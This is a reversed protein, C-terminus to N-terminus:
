SPFVVSFLHNKIETEYWNSGEGGFAFNNIFSSWLSMNPLTVYDPFFNVIFSSIAEDTLGYKLHKKYSIVPNILDALMVVWLNSRLKSKAEEKHLKRLNAVKESFGEEYVCIYKKQFSDSVIQAAM